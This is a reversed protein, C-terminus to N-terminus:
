ETSISPTNTTSIQNRGDEGQSSGSNNNTMNIDNEGVNTSVPTLSLDILSSSITSRLQIWLNSSLSRTHSTPSNFGLRGKAKFIGDSSGHITSNGDDNTTGSSSSNTTTNSQNTRIYEYVAYKCLPCKQISTRNVM